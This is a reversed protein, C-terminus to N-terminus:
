PAMGKVMWTQQDPIHKGTCHFALLAPVYWVVQTHYGCEQKKKIIRM